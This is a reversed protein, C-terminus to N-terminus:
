RSIDQSNHSAFIPEHKPSRICQLTHQVKSQYKKTSQTTSISLLNPQHFSLSRIDTMCNTIQIHHDNSQVKYYKEEGAMNPLHKNYYRQLYCSFPQFSIRQGLHPSKIAKKKKQNSTDTSFIQRHQGAIANLTVM